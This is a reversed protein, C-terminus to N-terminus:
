AWQETSAVPHHLVDDTIESLGSGDGEWPVLQRIKEFSGPNLILRAFLQISVNQLPPESSLGVSNLSELRPDNSDSGLTGAGDSYNGDRVTRFVHGGYLFFITTFFSPAM